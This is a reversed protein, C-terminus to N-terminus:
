EQLAEPQRLLEELKALADSRYQIIESEQSEMMKVAEEVTKSVVVGAGVNIRLTSAEELKAKVFMGNAVPALISDGKKLENFEKLSKIITRLELLQQDFVQLYQQLQQAQQEIMQFRLYQKQQEKRQQENHDSSSDKSTRKNFKKEAM